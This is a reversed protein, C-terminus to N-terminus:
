QMIEELMGDRTNWWGIGGGGGRGFGVAVRSMKAGNGEMRVPMEGCETKCAISMEM